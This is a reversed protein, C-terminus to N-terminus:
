ITQMIRDILNCTYNNLLSLQYMPRFMFRMYSFLVRAYISNSNLLYSSHQCLQICCKVKKKVYVRLVM